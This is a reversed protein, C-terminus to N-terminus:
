AGVIERVAALAVPYSKSTGRQRMKADAIYVWTAGDWEINQGHRIAIDGDTIMEGYVTVRGLCRCAAEQLQDEDFIDLSEGLKDHVRMLGKILDQHVLHLADKFGLGTITMWPRLVDILPANTKEELDKISAIAEKITQPM